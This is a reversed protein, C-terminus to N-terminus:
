INNQIGLYQNLTDRNCEEKKGYIKHYAQHCGDCMCIGNEVVYRLDLYLHYPLIHHARLNISKVGCKQCTYRDRKFVLRRWDKYQVSHKDEDRTKKRVKNPKFCHHDIGTPLSQKYIEYNGDELHWERLRKGLGSRTEIFLCGCSKVAGRRLDYGSVDKFNGCDCQCHWIALNNKRTVFDIVFLRNFKKGTIDDIRKDLGCGCHVKTGNTLYPQRIDCEVGCDCRCRWSYTGGGHNISRYLATLKGFRINELKKM